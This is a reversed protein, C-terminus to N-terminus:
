LSFLDALGSDGFCCTSRMSASSFSSDATIPSGDRMSMSTLVSLATTMLEAIGNDMHSVKGQLPVLIVDIFADILGHEGRLWVLLHEVDGLENWVHQGIGVM